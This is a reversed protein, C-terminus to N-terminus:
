FSSRPESRTFSRTNLPMPRQNEGKLIRFTEDNAIFGAAEMRSKIYLADQTHDKEMCANMVMHYCAQDAHETSLLLEIAKAIGKDSFSGKAFRYTACASLIIVPNM